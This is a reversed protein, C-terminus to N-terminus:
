KTNNTQTTKQNANEDLSKQTASAHQSRMSDGHAPEVAESRRRSAARILIDRYVFALGLAGSLTLLASLVQMRRQGGIIEDLRIANKGAAMQPPIVFARNSIKLRPSVLQVLLGAAFLLWCLIALTRRRRNARVRVLPDQRQATRFIL